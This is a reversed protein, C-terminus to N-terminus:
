GTPAPAAASKEPALFVVGLPPLSLSLSWSRGQWPHEEAERRGNTVGSGGFSLDDSSALESWGGAVPVGIRYDRQVTPTLNAVAVVPRAPAPDDGASRLVALVSNASDSADIWAFGDPECDLRHLAPEDRYLRNLAGVWRMMGAHEPHDLLEWPLAQDHNWETPQALEAGMFLLKKGPTAFMWGYLARLNAFRQWDDGPMRGLLSAKGHVVEDHSLPLVYNESFAYVARFTLDDQHWRRYVPERGFCELTDHMWGMDWKFGFGLGGTDVPRSVMPWATSEEAITHVDPFRAYVRENLQKLFRLAGLNENGGHENPEWEGDARSYDLYLMSAVADVRLGDAHYRDLWFQASSLLFSRVEHRDYNFILSGWDPHRGKRPDAHEYLHTGDFRALGHEDDPFHSPVWDLIVGIGAGHLADILAMLEEPPGLRTTPAFYGLSQYGWSAYYPHEMVPLLEVHTFGTGTVHEILPEALEAYHLSRLEGPAHRWSGLHMEYISMPSRHSCRTGRTALWEDDAWRHVPRHVVSATAPPMETHFAFPDARDFEAGGVRSVIRYKYRDGPAAAAVGGQWLGSAGFPELEDVAPTWGNWDGVVSVSRANPAWVGFVVGDPQPHAGLVEYLRDHVGENFLWADEDTLWPARPVEPEPM